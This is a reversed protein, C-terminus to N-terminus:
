EGKNLSLATSNTLSGPGAAVTPPTVKNTDFGTLDTSDWSGLTADTYTATGDTGGIDDTNYTFTGGKNNEIVIKAVPVFMPPLRDQVDDIAANALAATTYAMASVTEAIGNAAVVVTADNALNTVILHAGFQSQGITDNDEFVKDDEAADQAVALGNVMYDRTGISYTKDDGTGEAASAGLAATLGALQKEVGHVTYVNAATEGNVNDTGINFGANSDISFYGLTVSNATRAKSCLSLLSEQGETYQTDGDAIATVVGTDIIEIRWSRWKDADVDGDDGLTITTDLPTFYTIGNIRYKIDGAGTLSTAAGATVTFDGGIVGDAMDFSSQSAQADTNTKGTAHDTQIENVIDRANQLFLVLDGQWMGNGRINNKLQTYSYAMPICALVALVTCIQFIRKM